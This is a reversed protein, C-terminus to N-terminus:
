SGLRRPEPRSRAPAAVGPRIYDSGLTCACLLGVGLPRLESLKIRVVEWDLAPATRDEPLIALRTPQARGEQLVEIIRCWDAKQSDNIERLYLVQKQVVRDVQTRRNEVISGTATNRGDKLCTKVRLFM